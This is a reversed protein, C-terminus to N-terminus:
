KTKTATADDFVLKPCVDAMVTSLTSVAKLEDFNEIRMVNESVPNSAWNRIDKLPANATVALWMLRSKRRLKRAAARTKHTSLPKGDTIVVVLSQSDSRGLGLENQALTLAVSTLTTSKPWSLAEVIPVLDATNKTLHSVVEIGCEDKMNPPTGDPSSTCKEYAVKTRPGGFLIVGVQVKDDGGTMAGIVLKAAEKTATWGDEGISGSGDLVLIIDLKSECKPLTEKKPCEQENCFMYELRKADREAWCEGEGIAEAIVKKARSNMGRDCEKSCASWGSWDGLVCPKDCDDVNCNM